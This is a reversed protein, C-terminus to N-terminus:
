GAAAEEKAAADLQKQLEKADAKLQKEVLKSARKTAKRVAEEVTTEGIVVLAADGADLTEGLEKLDHRPLGRWLHGVLGGAAGGVIASGILSPPFLIGVVAGVGAGTWGGHQTPKEHRRVHVDGDADKRVIAADYTGVLGAAHLERLAEYDERAADEGDYAALFVLLGDSGM